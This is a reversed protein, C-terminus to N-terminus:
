PVFPPHVVLRGILIAEELGWGVRERPRQPDEARSSLNRPDIQRHASNSSGNNIGNNFAKPM